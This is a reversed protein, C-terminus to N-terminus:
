YAVSWARPVAAAAAFRGPAEEQLVPVMMVPASSRELAPPASAAMMVAAMAM